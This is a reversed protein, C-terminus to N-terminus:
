ARGRVYQAVREIDQNILHRLGAGASGYVKEYYAKEPGTVRVAVVHPRKRHDGDFSYPDATKRTFTFHDFFAEVEAPDYLRAGGPKEEKPRPFDKRQSLIRVYSRSVGYQEAIQTRGILSMADTM